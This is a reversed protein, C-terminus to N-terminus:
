DFVHYFDEAGAGLDDVIVPAEEQDEDLETGPDATAPSSTTTGWLTRFQDALMRYMRAKKYAFARLGEALEEEMELDDIAGQSRRNAREEWGRAEYELTVLVRRQEELLLQVEEEWRKM